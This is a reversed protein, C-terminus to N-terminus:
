SILGKNALDLYERYLLEYKNALVQDRNNQAAIHLDFLRDVIPNCVVIDTPWSWGPGFEEIPLPPASEIGTVIREEVVPSPPPNHALQINEFYEEWSDLLLIVTKSTGHSYQLPERSNLSFITTRGDSDTESDVYKRPKKCANINM